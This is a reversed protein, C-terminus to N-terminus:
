GVKLFYPVFEAISRCLRLAGAGCRRDEAAFTVALVADPPRRSKLVELM